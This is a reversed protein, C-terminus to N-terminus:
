ESEEDVAAEAETITGSWGCLPCTAWDEPDYSGIADARVTSGEPPYNLKENGCEPCPAPTPTTDISM